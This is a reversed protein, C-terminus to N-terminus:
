LFINGKLLEIKFLEYAADWIEDPVYSLDAHGAQAAQEYAFDVFHPLTNVGHFVADQEIESFAAELAPLNGHVDALVALRM